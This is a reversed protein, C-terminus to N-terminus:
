QSGCVTAKRESKLDGRRGRRGDGVLAGMWQRLCSKGTGASANKREGDLRTILIPVFSEFTDHVFLRGDRRARGQLALSFGYYHERYVICLSVPYLSRAGKTNLYVWHMSYITAEVHSRAGSTAHDTNRRYQIGDGIRSGTSQTCLPAIRRDQDPRSTAPPKMCCRKTSSDTEVRWDCLCFTRLISCLYRVCQLIM